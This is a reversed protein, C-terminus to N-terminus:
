AEMPLAAGRDVLKEIRAHGVAGCLEVWYPITTQWWGDAWYVTTEIGDGDFRFGLGTRECQISRDAALTIPIQFDLPTGAATSVLVPVDFTEAVAELVRVTAGIYREADHDPVDDDRYLCTAAPVVVLGTSGDVVRPLTRVIEHHQYATFGRAVQIRDLRRPHDAHEALAAPVAHDAADVWVVEGNIQPIVRGVLEHIATSRQGPQELHLIEGADISLTHQPDAM